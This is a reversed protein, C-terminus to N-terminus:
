RYIQIAQPHCRFELERHVGGDEGDRTWPVDEQFRFRVYESQVVTLARSSGYDQNMLAAVASSLDAPTQPKQVLLLEFKGDSLDVLQKDLKMVGGVSLANTVAGYIFEGEVSGGQFEVSARYPKVNGLSNIGEIVYALHGLAKKLEQDTKYSVETFVGFAAIYSFYGVDVMEGVDYPLASGRLLKEVARAPQRMPLGLTTAVDNATGMPIYGLKPRLASPLRMLGCITDSLTGDGGLCIMRHYNPALRTTMEIAAGPASTFYVTPSYGAECLARVVAGLDAESASRGAAPNVLLMLPKEIM